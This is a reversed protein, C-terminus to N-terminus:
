YDHIKRLYISCWHAVSNWINMKHMSDAEQGHEM